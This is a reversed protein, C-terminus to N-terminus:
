RASPYVIRLTAHVIEREAQIDNGIRDVRQPPARAAQRAARCVAASTRIWTIQESTSSVAPPIAHAM